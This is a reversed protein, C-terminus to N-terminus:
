GILQQFLFYDEQAQSAQQGLKKNLQVCTGPTPHFSRSTALINLTILNNATKRYSCLITSDHGEIVFVVVFM